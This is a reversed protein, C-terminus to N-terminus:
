LHCLCIISCSTLLIISNEYDIPNAYWASIYIFLFKFCHNFHPPSLGGAGMQAGKCYYSGGQNFRYLTIKHRFLALNTPNSYTHPISWGPKTLHAVGAECFWKAKSWSRLTHYGHCLVPVSRDGEIDPTHGASHWSRWQLCMKKLTHVSWRHM